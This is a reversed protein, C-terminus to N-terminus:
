TKRKPPFGLAWSGKQNSRDGYRVYVGTSVSRVIAVWERNPAIYHTEYADTGQFEEATMKAADFGIQRLIEQDSGHKLHLKPPTPAIRASEHPLSSCAAVAAIVLITLHHCRM